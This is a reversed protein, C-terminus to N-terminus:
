WRWRWRWGGDRGGGWGVGVDVEMGMAIVVGQYTALVILYTAICVKFLVRQIICHCRISRCQLIVRGHLHLRYQSTVPSHSQQFSTSKSIIKEGELCCLEMEMEIEWRWRWRGDGDGDGMETEMGGMEM